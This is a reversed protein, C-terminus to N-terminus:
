RGDMRKRCRSDSLEFPVNIKHLQSIQQRESTVMAEITQTSIAKAVVYASKIEKFRNGYEIAKQYVWRELNQEIDKQREILSRNDESRKENESKLVSNEVSM